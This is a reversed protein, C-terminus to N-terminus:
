CCCCCSLASRMQMRSPVGWSQRNEPFEIYSLETGKAIDEKQKSKQDQYTGKIKKYGLKLSQTIDQAQSLRSDQVPSQPPLSWVEEM